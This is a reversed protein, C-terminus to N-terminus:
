PNREIEHLPNPCATEYASEGDNDPVMMTGTGDCWACIGLARLVTIAFQVAADQYVTKQSTKIEELHQIAEETTMSEFPPVTM